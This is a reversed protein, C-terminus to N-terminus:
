AMIDGGAVAAPKPINVFNGPRAQFGVSGEIGTLELAENYIRRIDDRVNSSLPDDSRLVLDLRKNKEGVLGDIQLHGLKSLNLDVVFRTGGKIDEDEGDDNADQDRILLQIRDVESGFLFPVGHVRWDGTVPDDMRRTMQTMDSKLRGALDPRLKELIRVPGDGLWNRIDGGRLASLFFLVNAALQPDARPLAAQMIHQHAGPAAEHLLNLTEDFTPWNGDLLPAAGAHMPGHQAAGPTLPKHSNIEFRIETGPPLAQQTPLSIPGAHTQVVTQGVGQRGSAVGSLTAGPALSIQGEVPPPTLSPASTGAPLTISIIKINLGSGAPLLTNGGAPLQGVVPNPAGQGGGAAPATSQGSSAAAQATQPGSLGPGTQTSQVTGAPGATNGAASPIVTLVPNLTIPRLLQATILAGPRVQVTSPATASVSTPTGGPTSGGPAASAARGPASLLKGDLTALQVRPSAGGNLLQLLLADGAKVPLQQPVKVTIDGLRSSLKIQFADVLNYVLVDLKTGAPLDALAPPAETVILRQLVAQQAATANLTPPVVESM